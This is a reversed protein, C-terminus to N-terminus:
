SVTVRRIRTALHSDGAHRPGRGDDHRSQFQRLLERIGATLGLQALVQPHLEAVTSRLGMATEQLVAYVRDLAAALSPAVVDRGPMRYDLLAVAPNHERIAALAATGDDAEAVMDISRSSQLARVVGEGFMPHDDGVVVWARDVQADTM